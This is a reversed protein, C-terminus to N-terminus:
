KGIIAMMIILSFALSTIRDEGGRPPRYVIVLDAPKPEPTSEGPRFRIEGLLQDKAIVLGGDQTGGPNRIPGDARLDNASSPNKGQGV